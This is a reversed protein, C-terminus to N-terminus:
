APIEYEIGFYEKLAATLRASDMGEAVVTKPGNTQVTLTTGQLLIRQDDKMISVYLSSRFPEFPNMASAFNAHLFDVPEMAVDPFTIIKMPRDGGRWIEYWDGNKEMHFGFASPTGDFPIANQFALDGFGVDCYYKKGDLVCIVARHGVPATFDLGATVRAAIPYVQYGLCDLFALLLGTLEHCWGGRRQLVVKDFLDRVALSPCRGAAWADLNEFPVQQIHAYLIRNLTDLDPKRESASLGIRELYRDCDAATLKEYLAEFM